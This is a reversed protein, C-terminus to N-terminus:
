VCVDAAPLSGFLDGTIAPHLLADYEAANSFRALLLGLMVDKVIHETQGKYLRVIDPKIVLIRNNKEGAGNYAIYHASSAIADTQEKLLALFGKDGLITLSACAGLVMVPLDSKGDYLRNGTDLFATGFVTKGLAHIEFRCMLGSLGRTRKCKRAVSKCLLYASWVGAAVLGAPLSSVPLRLARDVTGHVSLGFAFLLGGFAFTLALFVAASSVIRGKKYFLILSLVIFLTIKIIFLGAAHIRLFPYLVAAATGVGAASLMRKKSRAVSLARYSVDSIFLTAFFNDM